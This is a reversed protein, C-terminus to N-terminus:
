NNSVDNVKFGLSFMAAARNPHYSAVAVGFVLWQANIYAGVKPIFGTFKEDQQHVLLERTGIAQQLFATHRYEYSYYSVGASFIFHKYKFVYGGGFEYSRINYDRSFQAIGNLMEPSEILKGRSYNLDASELNFTSNAELYFGHRKVFTYHLGYNSNEGDVERGANNEGLHSLLTFQVFHHSKAPEPPPKTEKNLRIAFSNNNGEEVRITETSEKYGKKKATIRYRGSELKTSLPSTGIMSNQLFIRSGSPLTNIRVEYKPSVPALEVSLKHTEEPKILITTDFEFYKEKQIKVSVLGSKVKLTAPTRDEIKINYLSISANSPNSTIELTGKPLDEPITPTVQKKEVMYYFVEKPNANIRAIRGEMFGKAAVFLIQRQPSILIEYRGARQNYRQQNIGGITSRFDLESLSSYVLVMANDPYQTNAQVVPTEPPDMTEVEFESLQAHLLTTLGPLFLFTILVHRSFLLVKLKINRSGKM